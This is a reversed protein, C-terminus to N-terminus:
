SGGSIILGPFTVKGILMVSNPPKKRKETCVSCAEGITKDREVLLLLFVVLPLVLAFVVRNKSSSISM